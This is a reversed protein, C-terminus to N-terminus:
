GATSGVDSRYVVLDTMDRDIETVSFLVEGVQAAILEPDVWERVSRARLLAGAELLWELTAQHSACQGLYEAVLRGLRIAPERAMARLVADLTARHEDPVDLEFPHIPDDFRLRGDELWAIPTALYLVQDPALCEGAALWEGSRETYPSIFERYLAASRAGRRYPPKSSAAPDCVSWFDQAFETAALPEPASARAHACCDRLMAAMNERYSARSYQRVAYDVCQASMHERLVSDRLLLMVKNVAEWWSVKVGSRTAVTSVKYGTVGDVITDRLGGWATGVVPTGCAMAEVQALGFNEDHNLTLNLQVDAINYLARLTEPGVAGATHVRGEPL